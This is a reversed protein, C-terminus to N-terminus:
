PTQKLAFKGHPLSLEISNSVEPMRTLLSYSWSPALVDISEQKNSNALLHKFLAQAMVMDGLWSPGIVLTKSKIKALYM